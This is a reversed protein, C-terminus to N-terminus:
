RNLEKIEIFVWEGDRKYVRVDRQNNIMNYVATRSMGMLEAAEAVTNDILWDNIEIGIV